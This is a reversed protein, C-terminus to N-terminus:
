NYCRPQIFFTRFLRDSSIACVGAEAEDLPRETDVEILWEPIQLAVLEKLLLALSFKGDGM